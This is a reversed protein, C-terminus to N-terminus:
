SFLQICVSVKKEQMIKYMKDLQDNLENYKGRIKGLESELLEKEKEHTKIKTAYMDSFLLSHILM